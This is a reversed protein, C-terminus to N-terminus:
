MSQNPVLLGLTAMSGKGAWIFAPGGRGGVGFGYGAISVAHNSCRFEQGERGKKRGKKREKKREREFTGPKLRCPYLDGVKTCYIRRTLTQHPSTPYPRPVCSFKVSHLLTKAVLSFHQNDVSASIYFHLPYTEPITKIIPHKSARM